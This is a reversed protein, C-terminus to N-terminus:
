WSEAFRAPPTSARQVVGTVSVPGWLAMANCRLRDRFAEPRVEPERLRVVSTGARGVIEGERALCPSAEGYSGSDGGEAGEPCAERRRGGRRAEDAYIGNVAVLLGFFFWLMGRSAFPEYSNWWMEWAYAAMFALFAVGVERYPSPLNRSAKWAERCGAVLLALWALLGVIGRESWILLYDNHVVYKWGTEQDAYNGMAYPYVGPGVGLVPNALAMRVAIRMLDTRTTLDVGMDAQRAKLAPLAILASVIVLVAVWAWRRDLRARGLFGQRYFMGVALAGIGIAVWSSRNLTLLVALMGTTALIGTLVRVGPIESTLFACLALFVLPEAFTAFGSPVTGITGVARVNEGVGLVHGTAAFTVGTAKQVFFIGCQLALVVLAAKIVLRAHGPSRVVNLTVLFILYLELLEVLLCVGFFRMESFLAGVATIAFYCAAPRTIEIGWRFRRADGGALLERSLLTLGVIVVLPISIATPSSNGINLTPLPKTVYYHLNISISMVFLWLLKRHVEGVFVWGALLTGLIAYLTWHLGRESLDIAVLVFLVPVLTIGAAVVAPPLRNARTRAAGVTM